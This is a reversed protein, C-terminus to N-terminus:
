KAPYEVTEGTRGNTVALTGDMRVSLKLYNGADPGPLNAIRSEAVNKANPVEATHLQWLDKLRPSGEITTFTTPAGGKMPGNDMIAVRPAIADVLAPSGSRDLGHHSVIYVDAKGLKNVPCMLGREKAWTLDGLDFIRTRGYTIVMGLSRDNETNEADKLPSAACAANQEGGAALPRAIV